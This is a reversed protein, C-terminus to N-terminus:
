STVEVWYALVTDGPKIVYVQEINWLKNGDRVKHFGELSVGLAAPGKTFFGEGHVRITEGVLSQIFQGDITSTVGGVGVAKDEVKHGAPPSDEDWAIRPGWPRASNSATAPTKLFVVDRGFEDVLEDVVETFETYDQAM